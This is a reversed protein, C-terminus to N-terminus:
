AWRKKSSTKATRSKRKTKVEKRMNMIARFEALEEETWPRSNIVLDINKPEKILGM